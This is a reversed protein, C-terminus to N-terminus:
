LRPAPRRLGSRANWRELADDLFASKAERYADMPKCDWQRKLANYAARLEPEAGMMEMFPEFVDYSGGVEYLLLTAEHESPVQYPQFQASSSKAADRKLMTDLSTRLVEFEGPRAGLAFDLDGKGILGAVVTSGVAKIAPFGTEARLRALLEFQATRLEDPDHDTLHFLETSTM